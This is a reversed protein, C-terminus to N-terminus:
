NKRQCALAELDDAMESQPDTSDLESLSREFEALRLNNGMLSLVQDLLRDLEGNDLMLGGGKGVLQQANFYQHNDAAYPYPILISPVRCKILEAISGAGSRSVALDAASLIESMRDSFELFLSKPVENERASDDVERHSITGTLCLLQLNNEQLAGLSERAWQNLSRAGQSGGFVLLVKKEPDFGLVRKAEERPIRDFESRIPMGVNRVKARRSRPLGVGHPLYVRDAFRSVLRTARGLIQNAEHIATPLRASRAAMLAPASIFGGFGVVIDPPNLEMKSACSRYGARLDKLFRAFRSPRLSLGTGPITDYEFQTYKKVLLSDVQKGSILLECSCGRSQLEEALAIGPALHGGTGGCAILARNM